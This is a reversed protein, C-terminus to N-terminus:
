LTLLRCKKIFVFSVKIEWLSANYNCSVELTNWIHFMKNKVIALLAISLKFELIKLRLVASISEICCQIVNFALQYRLLKLSKSLKDGSSRAPSPVM